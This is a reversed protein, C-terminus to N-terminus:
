LGMERTLSLPPCCYKDCVHGDKPPEVTNVRM